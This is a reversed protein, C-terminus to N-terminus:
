EDNVEITQYITIKNNKNLNGQKITGLKTISIFDEYLNCYKDVYINLPFEVQKKCNTKSFSNVYESDINFIFPKGMPTNKGIKKGNMETIRAQYIGYPIHNFYYMVGLITGFFILYLLVGIIDYANPLLLFLMVITGLFVYDIIGLYSLFEM